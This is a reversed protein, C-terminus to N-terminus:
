VKTKYLDRRREWEKFEQFHEEIIEEALPIQNERKEITKNVILSLGDIDYMKLGPTEKV